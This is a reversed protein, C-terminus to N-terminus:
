YRDLTRNTIGILWDLLFHRSSVANRIFIISEKQGWTLSLYRRSCEPDNTQFIVTEISIVFSLKGSFYCWQTEVNEKKVGPNSNMSNFETIQILIRQAKLSLLRHHSDKSLRGSSM